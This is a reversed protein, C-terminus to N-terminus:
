EIAVSWERVTIAAWIGNKAYPDQALSAFVEGRNEAKYVLLASDLPDVFAGASVLKGKAKLDRNYALHAERFPKRREEADPVYQTIVAFTKM